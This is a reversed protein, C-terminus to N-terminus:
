NPNGMCSNGATCAICSGSGNCVMNTGCSTGGSKNGGDVCTMAGTSCSTTGIRCVGPNTTCSSGATCAGCTGLGNCVMNTGCSTGAAKNGGDICAMLGTACSTTGTKCVGPNQTCVMGAICGGCAGHNCVQNTGCATGSAVNGTEACVTVGTVCSTAGTKC